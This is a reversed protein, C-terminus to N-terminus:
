ASRDSAPLALVPVTAVGLIQGTITGPRSGFAGRGRRLTLVILGVRRRAYAAIAEPPHGVLANGQPPKPLGLEKAAMTLKERAAALRSDDAGPAQRRAWPPAAVPKVAHLLVLEVGFQRAFGAAARADGVLHEDLDVACGIAPAPWDPRPMRPARPPVALIPITATRLLRETTSGFLVHASGRLGHTGVVIMRSGRESAVRHVEAAPDGVTTLREVKPTGQGSVARTIFRELHRERQASVLDHDYAVGAAADLLPDDAFLVTLTTNLRKATAAAYRLARAAHRSFDVGCLINGTAPM